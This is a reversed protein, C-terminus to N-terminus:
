QAHEADIKQHLRQCENAFRTLRLFDVAFLAPLSAFAQRNNALNRRAGASRFQYPRMEGSKRQRRLRIRARPARRSRSAELASQAQRIGELGSDRFTSDSNHPFCHCRRLFRDAFRAAASSSEDAAWAARRKAAQSSRVAATSRDAARSRRAPSAARPESDAALALRLCPQYRPDTWVQGVGM